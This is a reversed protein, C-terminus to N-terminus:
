ETKTLHESCFPSNWQSGPETKCSCGTWVWVTGCMWVQSSGLKVVTQSESWRAAESFCYPSKSFAVTIVICSSRAHPKVKSLSMTSTQPKFRPRAIYKQIRSPNRGVWSCLYYCVSCHKSRCILSISLDKNYLSISICSTIQLHLNIELRWRCILSDSLKWQWEVRHAATLPQIIEFILKKHRLCVCVWSM